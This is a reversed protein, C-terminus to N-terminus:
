LVRVSSRACAIDCSIPAGMSMDRLWCTPAPIQGLLVINTIVTEKIAEIGEVVATLNQLYPEMAEERSQADTSGAAPTSLSRAM